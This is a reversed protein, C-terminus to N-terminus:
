RPPDPGPRRGLRHCGRLPRGGGAAAAAHSGDHRVAPRKHRAWRTRRSRRHILRRLKGRWCPGRPPWPRAPATSPPWGPLWHSPPYKWRCRCTTRCRRWCARCTWAAKARFCGSQARKMCSRTWATPCRRRRTAWLMVRLRHRPLSAVDVLRSHSRSLHFADVLVAGNARAAARVVQAAQALNRVDTWPMFELNVGLGYRGALDCLAAFRVTLRAPDPDNGAVLLEAAGLRAATALAVDFDLVRTEPKLRFSDVDLVKLGTAALRHEVERLLPTDGVLDHATETPSAAFLRIGVHSFGAAAACDVQQPPTLELVSLAALSIPRSAPLGAPPM